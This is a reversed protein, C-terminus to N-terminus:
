WGMSRSWPSIRCTSVTSDAKRWGTQIVVRPVVMSRSMSRIASIAACPRAETEIETVVSSSLRARFISGRAGAGLRRNCIIRRRVSAPTGTRM